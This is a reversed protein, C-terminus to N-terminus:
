AGNGPVGLEFDGIRGLPGSQGAALDLQGLRRALERRLVGGDNTTVGIGGGQAEGAVVIDHV